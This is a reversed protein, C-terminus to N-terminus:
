THELAEGYLERKGLAVPGPACIPLADGQLCRRERSNDEEESILNYFAFDVSATFAPNARQCCSCVNSDCGLANRTRETTSWFLPEPALATSTVTDSLIETISLMWRRAVHCVRFHLESNTIGLFSVQIKHLAAEVFKRFTKRLCLYQSVKLIVM